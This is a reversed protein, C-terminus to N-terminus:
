FVTGGTEAGELNSLLSVAPEIRTSRLHTLGKQDAPQHCAFCLMDGTSHVVGDCKKCPHGAATPAWGCAPKGCLGVRRRKETSEVQRRERGLSQRRLGSAVDANAAKQRAEADAAAHARQRRDLYETKAQTHQANFEETALREEV